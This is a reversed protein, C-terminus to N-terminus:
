RASGKGEGKLPLHRDRRTQAAVSALSDARLASLACGIMQLADGYGRRGGARAPRPGGSVEGELLPSPRLLHPEHIVFVASM